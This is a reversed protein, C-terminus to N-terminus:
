DPILARVASLLGRPRDLPQSGGYISTAKSGVPTHGLIGGIEEATAQVSRLLDACTHRQSYLTLTSSDGLFRRFVRSLNTVRQRVRRDRDQRTWDPPLELGALVARFLPADLEHVPLDRRAAANKGGSLGAKFVLQRSGFVDTRESLAEPGEQLLEGPRLGYRALLVAAPHHAPAKEKIAAHVELMQKLPISDRQDKGMGAGSRVAKAVSGGKPLALGAWGPVRRLVTVLAAADSHVSSPKGGGELKEACYQMIREIQADPSSPWRLVRESLNRVKNARGPGVGACYEALVGAFAEANRAIGPLEEHKQPEGPTEPPVSHLPVPAGSEIGDLARLAARATLPHMQVGPPMQGEAHAKLAVRRWELEKQWGPSQMREVIDVTFARVVADLNRLVELATGTEPLDRSERRTVPLDKPASALAEACVRDFEVSVARALKLAETRDATGLAKRYESRGVLAAVETPFRRRYSYRGDRRSIFSM